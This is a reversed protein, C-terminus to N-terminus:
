RYLFDQNAWKDTWEQLSSSSETNNYEINNTVENVRSDPMDDAKAGCRPCVQVENKNHMYQDFCVCDWYDPTTSIDGIKETNQIAIM